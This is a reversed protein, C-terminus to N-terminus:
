LTIVSEAHNSRLYLEASFLRLSELCGRTCFADRHRLHHPSTDIASKRLESWISRLPIRGRPVGDALELRVNVIKGLVVISM